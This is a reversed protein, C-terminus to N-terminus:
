CPARCFSHVACGQCVALGKQGKCGGSIGLHALAFDFRVPDDANFKVLADTLERATRWSADKRKTLGLLRGTRAVHTDLPVVLESAPIEFLGLDVGDAPRVMWRLFLMWRKCASGGSPAVLFYRTGRPLAERGFRDEARKRLSVVVSELCERLSLGSRWRSEFAAKLSKEEGLFDSLSGLFLVWDESRTWRYDLGALRKREVAGEFDELYARPGGRERMRDFLRVLIPRFLSVRGYALQAACLAAIEQDHPSEFGHVLGLPDQALREERSTSGNLEELARHLSGAGSKEIM